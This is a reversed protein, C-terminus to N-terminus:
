APENHTQPQIAKYGYRNLGYILSDGTVNSKPGRLLSAHHKGKMMSASIETV